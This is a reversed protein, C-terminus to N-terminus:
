LVYELESTRYSPNINVLIAGLKATAYQLVTWEACNLAWIGIREGKRLGMAHLGLACKDVEKKMERYTWRINQHVVVLAETEPFREVTEDFMEGITKGLLPVNGTGSVYSLNSM